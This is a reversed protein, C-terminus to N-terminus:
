RKNLEEMNTDKTLDLFNKVVQDTDIEFGNVFHNIMVDKLNEGKKLDVNM